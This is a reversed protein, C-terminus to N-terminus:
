YKAAESRDTVIRNEINPEDSKKCECAEFLNAIGVIFFGFLFLQIWFIVSKLIALEGTLYTWASVLSLVFQDFIRQNGKWLISRCKSWQYGPGFRGIELSILPRFMKGTLFTIFHPEVKLWWLWLFTEVMSAKRLDKTCAYIM